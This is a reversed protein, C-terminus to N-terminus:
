VLTPFSGGDRRVLDLQVERVFGQMRLLPAYHTEYFIKGAMTLLDQFRVGAVITEADLGCWTLLTRNAKVITGDPLCSLYGVPASEYLEEATEDILKESRGDM